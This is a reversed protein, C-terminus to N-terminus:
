RAGGPGQQSGAGLGGREGRLIKVVEVLDADEVAGQQRCRVKGSPDVLVHAPLEPDGRFGIDRLWATRGAGDELWYTATLGDRSQGALFSELQRRDDDISLFVLRLSVPERALTREWGRLRPIEEKCPVCWAAWLNIWTWRGGGAPIREPLDGGARSLKGAPV